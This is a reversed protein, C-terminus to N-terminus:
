RIIIRKYVNRKRDPPTKNEIEEEQIELYRTYSNEM